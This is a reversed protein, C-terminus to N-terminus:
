NKKPLVDSLAIRLLERGDSDTVQIYDAMDGQGKLAYVLTERADRIAEIRAAEVDALEKGELDPVVGDSSVSNFHFRPM